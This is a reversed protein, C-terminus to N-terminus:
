NLDHLEKLGDLRLECLQILFDLLCLFLQILSGLRCLLKLVPRLDNLLSHLLDTLHIRIFCLLKKRDFLSWAAAFSQAFHFQTFLEFLRCLGQFKKMFSLHPILLFREINM